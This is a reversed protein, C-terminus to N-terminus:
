TSLYFFPIISCAVIVLWLLTLLIKARRCRNRYRIYSERRVPDKLVEEMDLRQNM